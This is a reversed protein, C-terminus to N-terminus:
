NNQAAEANSSYDKLYEYFTQAARSLLKQKKRILYTASHLEPALPKIMLPGNPDLDILNSFSIMLGLGEEVMLKPTNILTFYAVVNLEDLSSGLWFKLFGAGRTQASLILPRDRLMQPTVFPEEAFPDDKRLYVCWDEKWPM